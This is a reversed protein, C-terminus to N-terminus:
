LNEAYDSFFSIADLVYPFACDVHGNLACDGLTVQTAGNARMTDLAKTSNSYPVVEDFVGHYLRTPAIPAWDYLNNLALADKLPHSGTGQLNNLFAPEFLDATVPTLSTNIQSGTRSGDFSTNIVARYQPKYMEDISNLKYVSDYAKIVFNMYSPNSNTTQNALFEATGNLDYPGAGAASATVNFEGSLNEQIEKQLALTAYGGESYGALFLQNNTAINNNALFTKTARLMDASASALSDAHVYPHIISTSEAYGLYDPSSVIYGTGALYSIGQISSAHVSPALADTFITGHQYSLLPSTEGSAKRPISLLGSARIPRNETDVTYYVLKYSDVAYFLFSQNTSAVLSSSVLSGQAQSVLVSPSNSSGGGGCAFLLLFVPLLLLRLPQIKM